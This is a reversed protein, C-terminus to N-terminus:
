LCCCRTATNLGLLQRAQRVHGVRWMAVKRLREVANHLYQQPGRYPSWWGNLIPAIADVLHGVEPYTAATPIADLDAIAIVEYGKRTLKDGTWSPSRRWAQASAYVDRTATRIEGDLQAPTVAALAQLTGQLDGSETNSTMGM